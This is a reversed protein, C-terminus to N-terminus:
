DRLGTEILIRAVTQELSSVEPIIVENDYGTRDDAQFWRTMEAEGFDTVGKAQHRRLTEEFSIDFYYVYAKDSLEILRDFLGQYYKLRMIGEIIVDRNHEFAYAVTRYILEANMSDPGESEKLVQRRFYDHEILMPPPTVRDQIARAVSSKGSGSNGRLIILKSM